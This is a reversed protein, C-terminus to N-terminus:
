HHCDQHLYVLNDYQDQGGLHKPIVHHVHLQESAGLPQNCVPCLYNQRNAIKDKGGSFRGKATKKWHKANRKEWYKVLTPDDPSFTHQVLTHRQIPIWSLKHVYADKFSKDGFVWRDDRGPCLQGFYKNSIWEWSKKPHRRKGWRKLKGFIYSDLSNFTEKAVVGDHYNGWGKIKPNLDRIVQLTLM